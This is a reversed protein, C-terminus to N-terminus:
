DFDDNTREDIGFFGDLSDLELGIFSHFSLMARRKFANFCDNIQKGALSKKAKTILTMNEVAITESILILFQQVGMM